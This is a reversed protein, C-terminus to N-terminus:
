VRKILDLMAEAVGQASAPNQGTVLRGAMAVCREFPPAAVFRAGRERLTTELWFPLDDQLGAAHEEDNTFSAVTKGSVLYSGDSLKVNVLAAPGHCVAGVVGRAEYLTATMDQLPPDDPFDWMAGHGGAFFIAGYDQAEITDIARTNELRSAFESDELFRRSMDDGLDVSTEDMAAKGGRVSAFDVALGADTFVYYPHAVEPLWFGCPKGSKATRERNTMVLLVRTM